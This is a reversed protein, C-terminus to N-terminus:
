GLRLCTVCPIQMLTAGNKKPIELSKWFSFIKGFYIGLKTMSGFLLHMQLWWGGDGNSLFLGKRHGPEQKEEQAV